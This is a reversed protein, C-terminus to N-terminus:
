TEHARLHTYSVAGISELYAMLRGIHMDMADVMGAYVEMRRAHHARQEDTLVNWDLTGPTVIAETNKPIVGVEEDAIRRRERMVTWGEDYVGAYKDSFERPAQVPM